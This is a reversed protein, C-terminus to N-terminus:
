IDSIVTTKALPTGLSEIIKTSIDKPYTGM